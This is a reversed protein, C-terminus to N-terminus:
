GGQASEGLHLLPHEVAAALGVGVLTLWREKCAAQAEGCGVLCAQGMAWHCVWGGAGHLHLCRYLVLEHVSYLPWVLAM